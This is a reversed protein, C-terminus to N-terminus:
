SPPLPQTPAAARGARPAQALDAAAYGRNVDLAQLEWSHRPRGPLAAPATAAWRGPWLLGHLRRHESLNVELPQDLALGLGTLSVRLRRLRDQDRDIFLSLHDASGGGLGPQLLLRLHDCRRGDLTVPEAWHVPGPHKDLTIAGLLLLRHLDAVVAAARSAADGAVPQGGSWRQVQGGPQAQLLHHPSRGGGDLPAHRLALSGGSPLLRVELPVATAATAGARLQGAPPWWTDSLTLNLDQLGRWAALGQTQATSQLQQLASSSGSAGRGAPLEPWPAACGALLLWPSAGLARGLLRRRTTAPFDTETRM